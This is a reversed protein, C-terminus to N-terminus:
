CDTETLHKLEATLRDVNEDTFNMVGPKGISGSGFQQSVSLLMKEDRLHLPTKALESANSAYERLESKTMGDLNDLLVAEQQPTLKPMAAFIRGCIAGHNLPKTM